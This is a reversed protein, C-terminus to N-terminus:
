FDGVNVIHGIPIAHVGVDLNHVTLDEPFPRPESDWGDTPTKAAHGAPNVEQKGKAMQAETMCMDGMLTTLIGRPQLMAVLISAGQVTIDCRIDQDFRYLLM